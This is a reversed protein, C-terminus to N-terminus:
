ESIYIVESVSPRVSDERKNQAQASTNSEQGPVLGAGSALVKSDVDIPKSIKLKLVPKVHSLEAAVALSEKM